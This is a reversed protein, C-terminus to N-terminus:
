AKRTKQPAPFIKALKRLNQATAALLFEDNAGSPGRLRLRGLGLIRKLHAFLMEVKKRLKMSIDYQRTKAIDRAVQRADEHEERTISRFDMNPCCRSKSPCAQCTLKLGRYKAVGKGTPGRNPDSYNRRFQKLEHGEPCIYQDKEANWEFDARTWTGDSRGSHDLVPIHPAIKRDVLWGLMPGTGYATDAILREPHLDFRAKVRDLMTRTSGVEAQRISRTGEVDVIVGHDTDILYNDSYSFFAPGKRAATWQSAPDSHSTFKPEVESAAGFAEHDLVELYEQVARPADAPDIATRDWEEKPTSNQKNADAEILSADVALRQGSVLGEAICRAVVTEFLHRLLDSERFRGHRNKSFSSHDPVPDSLDLRCFWRYALNLHVEECLRRESRIGFCYGVLLMRILLEPDISPRGTHSYFPALHPRISSLDVFPDILRLLHDQPVHGELSFEYFLAAQAEQRPGMM